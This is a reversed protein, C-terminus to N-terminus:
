CGEDITGDCNNDVGDCVETAAPNVNANLDDCDLDNDVWSPGPSDCAIQSVNPDGYGDADADFYWTTSGGGGEDINGDCNNDIGDCVETAAPNVNANFDDCDILKSHTKPIPSIM